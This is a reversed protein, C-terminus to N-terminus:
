RDLLKMVEEPYRLGATANAAFVSELAQLEDASLKVQLAAVNEELYKRQKTGGQLLQWLSRDKSRAKAIRLNSFM